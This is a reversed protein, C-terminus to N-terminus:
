IKEAPGTRRAAAALARRGSKADLWRRLNLWQLGHYADWDDPGFLMQVLDLGNGLLLM